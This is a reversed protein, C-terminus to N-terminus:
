SMKPDHGQAFTGGGPPAQVKGDAALLVGPLGTSQKDKPGSSVPYRSVRNALIQYEQQSRQALLGLIENQKQLLRERYEGMKDLALGEAIASLALAYEREQTYVFALNFRARVDGPSVELARLFAQRAEEIRGLYFLSDGLTNWLDASCHPNLELAAKAMALGAAPARLVFTLFRAVEGLLMWNRPQRALAERYALAAAETRGESVCKRALSAPEQLWDFTAKGFRERFKEVTEPVAKHALLRAYIHGNDELPESWSVRGSDGFYAKLLPFNIGVATAQSFRQHELGERTDAVQTHGYDNLLIFGGDDVMDLLSDLWEIAKYNHLLYGPQSRGFEVAFPGYPLRDTDVPFYEYDSVFFGFLDSLAQREDPDPSAALRAIEEPTLTTHEQLAVGRALCTRVCLQRVEKDDLRLFTAPLCDLVYNLFVAHFPRPGVGALAVDKQLGRIPNDGDAVRLLYRGPHDSFVGHRCADLLMRESRDVAVYRLREYYDNGHQTCLQRFTDLFFKAFLGLGIGVELVFVEPQLRGSQEAAALSAFLVEAANHSLSGDNNIVFPVTDSLFARSGRQDWYRQGLEWEISEPLPRYDQVVLRGARAGALIEMPAAFSGM